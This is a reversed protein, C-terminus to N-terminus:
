EHLIHKTTALMIFSMSMFELWELCGHFVSTFTIDIKVFPMGNAVLNFAFLNPISHMGFILCFIMTTVLDIRKGNKERKTWCKTKLVCVCSIKKGNYVDYVVSGNNVSKVNWRRKHEKMNTDIKWSWHEPKRHLTLARWSNERWANDLVMSQYQNQKWNTVIKVTEGQM